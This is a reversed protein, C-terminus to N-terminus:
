HLYMVWYVRPRTFRANHDSCCLVQRFILYRGGALRRLAGEIHERVWSLHSMLLSAVNELLVVPPPSVELSEVLCDFRELSRVLDAHSVVRKLMSYDECPFGAFRLDHYPIGSIVSPDSVLYPFVDLDPHQALHAARHTEDLESAAVLQFPHGFSRLHCSFTDGGSFSTAVRWYSLSSIPSNSKIATLLAHISHGSVGQCLTRLSRRCGSAGECAQVLLFQALPDGHPIGFLELLSYLSLYRKEAVLIPHYVTSVPITPLVGRDGRLLRVGVDEPVMTSRVLRMLWAKELDPFAIRHHRRLISEATGYVICSTPSAPELGWCCLARFAYYTFDLPLAPSTPNGHIIDFLSRSTLPSVGLGLAGEFSLSRSVTSARRPARVTLGDMPPDLLLGVVVRAQSRSLSWSSISVCWRELFAMSPYEPFHRHPQRAPLLRFRLSGTNERFGHLRVLVDGHRCSSQVRFLAGVPPLPRSREPSSSRLRPM